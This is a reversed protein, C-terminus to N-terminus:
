RTFEQLYGSQGDENWRFSWATPTHRDFWSQESSELAEKFSPTEAIFALMAYSLYYRKDHWREIILRSNEDEGLTQSVRNGLAGLTSSAENVDGHTAEALEAFPLGRNERDWLAKYLRMQGAPIGKYTLVRRIKEKNTDIAERPPAQRKKKSKASAMNSALEEDVIRQWIRTQTVIAVEHERDDEYRILMKPEDISLVEYRGIENRYMEGVEFLHDM